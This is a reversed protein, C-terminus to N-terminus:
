PRSIRAVFPVRANLCLAVIAQVQEATDPLMVVGPTARYSVLGDSEYTRREELSSVVGSPGVIAALRSVRQGPGM